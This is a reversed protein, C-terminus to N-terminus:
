KQNLERALMLKIMEWYYKVLVCWFSIVEIEEEQTKGINYYVSLELCHHISTEM